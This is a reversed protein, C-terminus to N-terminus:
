EKSEWRNPKAISCDWWKECGIGADSEEYWKCNECSKKLERSFLANLDKQSFLERAKSLASSLKDERTM